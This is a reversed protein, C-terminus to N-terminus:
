ASLKLCEVQLAISTTVLTNAVLFRYVVSARVWPVFAFNRTEKTVVATKRRVNSSCITNSYFYAKSGLGTRAASDCSDRPVEIGRVM